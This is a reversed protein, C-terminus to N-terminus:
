SICPSPAGSGSIPAEAGFHVQVPRDDGAKGGVMPDDGKSLWPAPRLLLGSAGYEIGVIAASARADSSESSMARVFRSADRHAAPDLELDGGSCGSRTWLGTSTLVDAAPVPRSRIDIGIRSILRSM